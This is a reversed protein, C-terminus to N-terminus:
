FAVRPIRRRFLLAGFHRLALVGGGRGGLSYESGATLSPVMM